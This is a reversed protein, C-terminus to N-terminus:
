LQGGQRADHRALRGCAVGTHQLCRRRYVHRAAIMALVAWRCVLRRVNGAFVGIARIRVVRLDVRPCPECDTDCQRGEGWHQDKGHGFEGIM